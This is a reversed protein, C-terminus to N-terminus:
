GAGGQTSRPAAPTVPGAGTADTVAAIATVVKLGMPDTGFEVRVRSGVKLETTKVTDPLKYTEGSDLTVSATLADISVIIGLSQKAADVPIGSSGPGSQAFAPSALLAAALGFAAIPRM